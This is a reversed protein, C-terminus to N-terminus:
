LVPSAPTRLRIAAEEAVDTGPKTVPRDDVLVEGAMVLRRALERSPVLGREVLLRDIRV